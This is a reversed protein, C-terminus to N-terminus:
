KSMSIVKGDLSGDAKAKEIAEAANQPVVKNVFETAKDTDTALEM